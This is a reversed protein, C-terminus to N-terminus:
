ESPLMRAYSRSVMSDLSRAGIRLIDTESGSGLVQITEDTSSYLGKLDDTYGKLIGVGSHVQKLCDRTMRVDESVGVLEDLAGCIQDTTLALKKASHILGRYFSIHRELFHIKDLSKSHVEKRLSVEGVSSILKGESTLQQKLLDYHDENMPDFDLKHLPEEEYSDKSSVLTQESEKYVMLHNRTSDIEKLLQTERDKLHDSSYIIVGVLSENLLGVHSLQDRFLNDWGPILNPTVKSVATYASNLVPYKELIRRVQLQKQTTGIHRMALNLNTAIEGVDQSGSKLKQREKVIAIAQRAHSEM